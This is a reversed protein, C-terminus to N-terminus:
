RAKRNQARRVDKIFVLKTAQGPQFDLTKRDAGALFEAKLLWRRCWAFPRVCGVQPGGVWM